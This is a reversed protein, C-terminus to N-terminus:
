RWTPQSVRTLWGVPARRPRHGFRQQPEAQALGRGDARPRFTGLLCVWDRRWAPFPFRAGARCVLSVVPVFLVHSPIEPEQNRGVSPLEWRPVPWACIRLSRTAARRTPSAFDTPHHAPHDQGRDLLAHRLAPRDHLHDASLLGFFVSVVGWAISFKLWKFKFFVLWVLVLYGFLLVLAAIM